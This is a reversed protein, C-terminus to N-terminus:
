DSEKVKVDVDGEQGAVGNFRVKPKDDFQPKQSSSSGAVLATIEGQFEKLGQPLTSAHSLISVLRYAAYASGLWGAICAALFATVSLVGVLLLAAAGVMWGISVVAVVLAAGGIVLLTGIAFLLFTLTPIFSLTAFSALFLTLLPRQQASASLYDAAPDIFRTQADARKSNLFSQASHFDKLAKEKYVAVNDAPSM